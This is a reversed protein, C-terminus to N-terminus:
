IIFLILFIFVKDKAETIKRKNEAILACFILEEFVMGTDDVETFVIGIGFVEVVVVLYM